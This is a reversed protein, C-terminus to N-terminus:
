TSLGPHLPETDTESKQNSTGIGSTDPVSDRGAQPQIAESISDDVAVGSGDGTPTEAAAKVNSEGKAENLAEMTSAMMMVHPQGGTNEDYKACVELTKILNLLFYSHRVAPAEPMYPSNLVADLYGLAYDRGSGIAWFGNYTVDSYALISDLYYISGPKVFLVECNGYDKFPRTGKDVILPSLLEELSDVIQEITYPYDKLKQIENIHRTYGSVGLMYEKRVIYKERSFKKNNDLVVLSDSGIYAIGTKKDLAAIVTTM